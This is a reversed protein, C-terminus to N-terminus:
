KTHLIWDKSVTLNLAAFNKFTNKDKPVPLPSAKLVATIVSHDLISNGSSKTLVVQLVKGDPALNILIKPLNNNDIKGPVVWNREIAAVILSGYKKIQANIINSNIKDLQASEAHMQQQLLEKQKAQMTTKMKALKEIKAQQKQAAIQQQHLKKLEAQQKQTAIQQQHLKKLETQQKQAVIQQQRMKKLEAQQNLKQQQLLELEKKAKLNKETQIKIATLQKEKLEQIKKQELLRAMKAKLALQELMKTEAIKANEAEQKKATIKNIETQVANNDVTVAQVIKSDDNSNINKQSSASKYHEFSFMLLAAVIIHLFIACLVAHKKERTQPFFKAM